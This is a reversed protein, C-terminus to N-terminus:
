PAIKNQELFSLVPDDNESPPFAHLNDFTIGLRPRKTPRTPSPTVDQQPLPVVGDRRPSAIALNSPTPRSVVDLIKATNRCLNTMDRHCALQDQEINVLQAHLHDVKKQLKDNARKLDTLNEKVHTDMASSTILFYLLHLNKQYFFNLQIRLFM